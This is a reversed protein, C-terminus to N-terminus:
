ARNVNVTHSSKEYMSASSCIKGVTPIYFLYAWQLGSDVADGPQNFYYPCLGEDTMAIYKGRYEVLDDHCNQLLAKFSRVINREEDSTAKSDIITDLWICCNADTEAYM